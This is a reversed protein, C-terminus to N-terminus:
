ALIMFYKQLDVDNFESPIVINEGMNAFAVENLFKQLFSLEKETYNEGTLVVCVEGSNVSTHQLINLIFYIMDEPTSYSFTNTLVFSDGKFLAVQCSNEKKYVLLTNQKLSAIDFAYEALVQAPSVFVAKPMLVKLGSHIHQQFAFINEAELKTSTNAIITDTTSIKNTQSLYTKNQSADYLKYPVWVDKSTPCVIRTNQFNFIHIGISTFCAKLNVITQTIGSNLDTEFEGICQLRFSKDILAFCFGSATLCISLNTENTVINSETKWFNVLKFTNM